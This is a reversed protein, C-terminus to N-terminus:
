VPSGPYYTSTSRRMLFETTTVNIFGFAIEFYWMLYWHHKTFMYLLSMSLLWKLYIKLLNRTFIWPLQILSMINLLSKCVLIRPPLTTCYNLHMHAFSASWMYQFVWHMDCLAVILLRFSIICYICCCIFRVIVLSLSFYYVCVCFNFQVRFSKSVVTCFLRPPLSHGQWTAASVIPFKFLLFCPISPTCLVYICHVFVLFDCHCVVSRQTAKFVTNDIKYPCETVDSPQKILETSNMHRMPVINFAYLYKMFLFVCFILMSGTLPMIVCM